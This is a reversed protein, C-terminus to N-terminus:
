KRRGRRGRTGRVPAKKKEEPEQPEEQAESRTRRKPATPTSARLPRKRPSEAVELRAASRTRKRTKAPENAPAPEASPEEKLDSAENQPTEAAPQLSVEVDAAAEASVLEERASRGRRGAAERKPPLLQQEDLDAVEGEVDSLESSENARDDASIDIKFNKIDPAAEEKTETINADPAKPSSDLKSDPKPKSLRPEPTRTRSRPIEESPENEIEDCLQLDYFQALKDWIQPATFHVSADRDKNIQVVIQAMNDDKDPGAPKHDCILTFLRIELDTTWMVHLLSHAGPSPPFQRCCFLSARLVLLFHM